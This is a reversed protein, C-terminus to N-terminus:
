ELTIYTEPVQGVIVTEVLLVETTVTTEIKAWPVIIIVNVLVNLSIKHKTQNIGSSVFDNSYDAHSSSLMIIDLSIRPGKGQTLNSGVLNGLPIKIDLAGREADNIVTRILESSLSNILTTNTSFATIKGDSDKEFVVFDSYDYGDNSMMNLVTDNIAYTIMDIAQTRAADISISRLQLSSPILIILVVALIIILRVKRKTAKTAPRMNIGIAIPRRPRRRTYM